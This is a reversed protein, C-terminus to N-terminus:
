VAPSLNAVLKELGARPTLEGHLGQRYVQTRQSLTPTATTVGTTVHLHLGLCFSPDGIARIRAQILVYPHHPVLRCHAAATSKILWLQLPHPHNLNLPLLLRTKRVQLRKLQLRITGRVGPLPHQALPAPRHTGQWLKRHNLPQSVLIPQHTGQWLKCHDLPYSVLSQYHRGLRDKRALTTIM